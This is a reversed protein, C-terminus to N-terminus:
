EVVFLGDHFNLIWGGASGRIRLVYEYYVTCAAHMASGMRGSLQGAAHGAYAGQFLCSALWVAVWRPYGALDPNGM